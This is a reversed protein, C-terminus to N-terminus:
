VRKISVIQVKKGNYKEQILKRVDSTTYAQIVEVTRVNGVRYTVEWSPITVYEVYAMEM